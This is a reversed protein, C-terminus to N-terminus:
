GWGATPVPLSPCANRLLKYMLSIDCKRYSNDVRVGNLVTREEKNVNAGLHRATPCTNPPLKVVLIDNYVTTYLDGVIRSLRFFIKGKPRSKRKM